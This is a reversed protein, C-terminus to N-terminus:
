KSMSFASSNEHGAPPIQSPGSKEKRKKKNKQGNGKTPSPQYFGLTKNEVHMGQLATSQVTPQEPSELLNPIDSRADQPSFISHRRACDEQSNSITQNNRISSKHPYSQRSTFSNTHPVYRSGSSRRAEIRMPDLDCRFREPVQVDLKLGDIAFGDFQELAKRADSTSHFRTNFNAHSLALV